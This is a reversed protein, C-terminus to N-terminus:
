ADENNRGPERVIDDQMSIWEIIALKQKDSEFLKFVLKDKQLDLSIAVEGKISLNILMWTACAENTLQLLKFVHKRTSGKNTNVYNTILYMIEDDSLLNFNEDNQSQNQLLNNLLM